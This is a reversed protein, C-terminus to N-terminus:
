HDRTNSFLSFNNCGIKDNLNDTDIDGMNNNPNADEQEKLIENGVIIKLIVNEMLENFLKKFIKIDLTKPLYTNKNKETSTAIPSKTKTLYKYIQFVGFAGLATIGAAIVGTKTNM